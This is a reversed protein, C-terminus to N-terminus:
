RAVFLFFIFFPFVFYFNFMKSTFSSMTLTEVWHRRAVQVNSFHKVKTSQRNLKSETEIENIKKIAMQSFISLTKKPDIAKPGAFSLFSQLWM